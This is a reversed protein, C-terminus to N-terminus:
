LKIGIHKKNYLHLKGKIIELTQSASTSEYVKDDPINPYRNRQDVKEGALKAGWGDVNSYAIMLKGYFWAFAIESLTGAGGGVVIVADANAVIANRMADLGTPISIDAYDNADDANFSPVLAVTDGDKYKESSHAGKFVANMVGGMGGSQIRFGNDILMKGTEFALKYKLSNEEINADGVVAIIKRRM